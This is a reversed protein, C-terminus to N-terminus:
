KDRSIEDKIIKSIEFTNKLDVNKVKFPDKSGRQQM